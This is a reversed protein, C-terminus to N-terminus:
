YGTRCDICSSTPVGLRVQQQQRVTKKEENSLCIFPLDCLHGVKKNGNTRGPKSSSSSSPRLSKVLSLSPRRDEGDDCDTAIRVCLYQSFYTCRLLESHKNDQHKPTMTTSCQAIGPIIHHYRATPNNLSIFLTSLCTTLLKVIGVEENDKAKVSRTKAVDCSAQERM